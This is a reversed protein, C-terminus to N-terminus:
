QLTRFNATIEVKEGAESLVKENAKKAAWSIRMMRMKLKNFRVM